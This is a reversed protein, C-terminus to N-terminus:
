DKYTYPKQVCLIDINTVEIIRELNATVAKSRQANIQGIKLRM